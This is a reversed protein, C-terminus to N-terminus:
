RRGAGARAHRRHARTQRQGPRGQRRGDRAEDSALGLHGVHLAEQRGTAQDGQRPGTAAALRAEREFHGSMLALGEQVVGDEDREGREAIGAEDRRGDPPREADPLRGPQRVALRHGQREAVALQQQDQVVELVQQLGRRQHALPERGAGAQGDQHGAALPEAELALV